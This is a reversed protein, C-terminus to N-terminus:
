RSLTRILPGLEHAVFRFRPSGAREVLSATAIPCINIMILPQTLGVSKRRVQLEDSRKSAMRAARWAVSVRGGRQRGLVVGDRRGRAAASQSQAHQRRVAM